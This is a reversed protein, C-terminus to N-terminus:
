IWFVFESENVIEIEGGKKIRIVNSHHHNTNTNTNTNTNPHSTILISM